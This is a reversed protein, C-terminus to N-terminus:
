KINNLVPFTANDNHGLIFEKVLGIMKKQMAVENSNVLYAIHFVYGNHYTYLENATTSALSVKNNKVDFHYYHYALAGGETPVIQHFLPSNGIMGENKIKNGLLDSTDENVYFSTLPNREVNTVSFIAFQQDNGELSKQLYSFQLQTQLRGDAMQSTVAYVEQINAKFPLKGPEIPHIANGMAAAVEQMAEYGKLPHYFELNKRANLHDAIQFHQSYTIDTGKVKTDFLSALTTTDITAQLKNEPKTLQSAIFFLIACTITLTIVRNSWHRRRQLPQEQKIKLKVQEIITEKRESIDTLVKLTHKNM